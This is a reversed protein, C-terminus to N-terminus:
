ARRDPFTLRVLAGGREGSLLEVTGTHEEMIKRVIALGLGTGGGRTTVYPELLRGREAPFGPGEDEVEIVVSGEEQRLTVTITGARGNETMAQAANQLLNTLAQSLKPGDCVLEVPQAPLRADFAVGRWDGQQQLLVAEEILPQLPEPRLVAAPMRAFASFEGILRGITDVQRIITDVIKQFPQREEGLSAAYKRSLREASLRIPTLPNKVEHAIRRAVEAWAAQRQANILATVDDFTLVYGRTREGERQPALRVLLIRETGGRLVRLEEEVPQDPRGRLREFLAEVGPLVDDIPRGAIEGRQGADAAEGDLLRVASRNPLVIRHELDLGIVGATVGALVTETFRRREDLEHNTEILERRQSALQATMRNFARGLAALEDADSGEEPVRALFDGGRVRNAATILRSVPTVLQNAFNLGTWVAAFLLLLAVVIFLLASAIQIGSRGTELQQYESVVSQTREVYGLVKPDVFRGIILYADDFNELRVVARVRDGTDSTETVIDGSQAREIDDPAIPELALTFGLGTEALVNGRTDFVVAEDLVRLRAQFEVVQQLRQPSVSLVASDRNLDAAMAIADARINEKHEELYAQAVALSNQLATRVRDSFWYELGSNLFFVSFVAVVVSPAVAVLSFLLVLRTHLRSGAHGQRWEVIVRVLRRAIILGLGLLLVLDLNLLLLVTRVRAGYPPRQSLVVYTALGCVVALITLVLALRREVEPRRLRALWGEDALLRGSLM